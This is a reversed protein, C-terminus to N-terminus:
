AQELSILAIGLDRVKALLSHLRAQDVDVGTLTTTGDPEIRITFGDFWTAWRTDLRGALRITYGAPNQTM